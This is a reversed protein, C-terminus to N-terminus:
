PLKRFNEPLAAIEMWRAVAEKTTFVRRGILFWELYVRRDPDKRMPRGDLRWRILTRKHPFLGKFKVLDLRIPTEEGALTVPMLGKQKRGKPM